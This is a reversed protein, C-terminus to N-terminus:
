ARLNQTLDPTHNQSKGKNTSWINLRFGKRVVSYDSRFQIYVWHSDSFFTRQKGSEAGWPYNYFLVRGSVQDTIKVWDYGEELEFTEFTFGLKCSTGTWAHWGANEYNRYNQPFNFSTIYLSRSSCLLSSMLCCDLQKSM